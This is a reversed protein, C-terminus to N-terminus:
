RAGFQEVLGAVQVRLDETKKRRDLSVEYKAAYTELAGKDMSENTLLVGEVQEREQKDEQSIENQLTLAAQIEEATNKGDTTPKFEAFKSLRRAADVTVLKSDGPDWSTKSAKDKFAKRGNYKLRVLDM